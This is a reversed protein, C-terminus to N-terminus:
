KLRVAGGQRKLPSRYAKKGSAYPPQGGTKLGTLSHFFPATGTM